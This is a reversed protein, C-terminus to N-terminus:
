FIKKNSNFTLVCNLLEFFYYSPYKSNRIHRIASYWKVCFWHTFCAITIHYQRKLTRTKEIHLGYPNKKSIPLSYAYVDNFFILVTNVVKLVYLIINIPKLQKVQLYKHLITKTAFHLPLFVNLSAHASFRFWSVQCLFLFICWVREICWWHIKFMKFFM